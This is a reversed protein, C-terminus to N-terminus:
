LPAYEVVVQFDEESDESYDFGMGELMDSHVAGWLIFDEGRTTKRVSYLEVMDEAQAHRRIRIVDKM